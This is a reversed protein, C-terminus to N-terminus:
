RRNAKAEGQVMPTIVARSIYQRTIEFERALQTLLGRTKGGRQAKLELYRAIIRDNRDSTEEGPRRRRTAPSSDVIGAREQRGKKLVAVISKYRTEATNAGVVLKGSSKPSISTM